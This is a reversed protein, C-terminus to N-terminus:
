VLEHLEFPRDAHVLLDFPGFQGPGFTAPMLVLHAGPAPRQVRLTATVEHGPAFPTEHLLPAGAKSPGLRLRSCRQGGSIGNGGGGGGGGPPPNPLVRGDTLAVARHTVDVIVGGRVEVGGEGGGGGCLLEAPIPGGPWHVERREVAAAEGGVGRRRVTLSTEDAGLLEGGLDRRDIAAPAFVYRLACATYVRHAHPTYATCPGHM